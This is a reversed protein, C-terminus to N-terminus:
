VVKKSLGLNNFSVSKSNDPKYRSYIIRNGLCTEKIAHNTLKSLYKSLAIHNKRTIQEIKIAGRKHWPTPDIKDAQIVAHYHIRGNETGYDVNAIYNVQYSTKSLYRKVFNHLSDKDPYKALTEDSFTLTLFLCPRILMKNIRGKLHKVRKYNAHALKITEKVLPDDNNTLDINFRNLAEYKAIEIQNSLYTMLADRSAIKIGKIFPVYDKDITMKDLKYIAMSYQSYIQLLGCEIIQAKLNYDIKM